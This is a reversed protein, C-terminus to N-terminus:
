GLCKHKDMNLGFKPQFLGASKLTYDLYMDTCTLKNV